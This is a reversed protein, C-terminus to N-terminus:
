FRVTSPALASKQELVIYALVIVEQSPASILTTPLRLKALIPDAVPFKNTLVFREIPSWTMVAECIVPELPISLRTPITLMSVNSVDEIVAQAPMEVFKSLEQPLERVIAFLVLM